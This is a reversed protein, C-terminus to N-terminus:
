RSTNPHDACCNGNSWTSTSVSPSGTATPSASPPIEGRVSNTCPGTSIM